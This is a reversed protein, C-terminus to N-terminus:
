LLIGTKNILKRKLFGYIKDPYKIAKIFLEYMRLFIKKRVLNKRPLIIKKIENYKEFSVQVNLFEAIKTIEKQPNKIINEYQVNLRPFSPYRNFFEKIYNDYVKKIRYADQKNIGRIKLSNAVKEKKRYCVIFYPNNLYPLFLEITITTRPDKWGWLKGRKKEVIKKIRKDFMKRKKLLESNDPPNKWDKDLKRIIYKNLNVFDIDEYFGLPNTYNKKILTRGMNVGLKSLIHAMLSTGSRHMGLVIVEKENCLKCM